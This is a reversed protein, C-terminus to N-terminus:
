TCREEAQKGTTPPAGVGGWVEGSRQTGMGVTGAAAAALSGRAALILGAAGRGGHLRFRHQRREWAELWGRVQRPAHARTVM